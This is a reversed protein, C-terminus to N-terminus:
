KKSDKKEKTSSVEDDPLIRIHIDKWLSSHSEGKHVQLGFFGERTDHEPDTDVFNVRLEGNLWTQIRNGECRITVENWDDWKFLRAGQATFNNRVYEDAATGEKKPYLWKRRFEDFLGASWHRDKNDGESQYGYVREDLSKTPKTNARFMVGTNGDRTLFKFKYSFIFNKYRKETCLFTNDKIDTGHGWVAGDKVEFKGNGGKKTWGTLDKGNFLSIVPLQVESENLISDEHDHAFSVSTLSALGISVCAISTSLKM